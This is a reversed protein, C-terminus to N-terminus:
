EKAQTAHRSSRTEYRTHTALETGSVLEIHQWARGPLCVSQSVITPLASEQRKHEGM